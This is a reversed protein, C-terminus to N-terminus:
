SASDPSQQMEEGRLWEEIVDWHLDSVSAAYRYLFEAWPKDLPFDVDTRRENAKIIRLMERMATKTIPSACNENVMGHLAADCDFRPLKPVLFTQGLRSRAGKQLRPCEPQPPNGYHLENCHM